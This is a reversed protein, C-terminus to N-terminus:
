SLTYNYYKAAATMADQQTKFIQANQQYPTLWPYYHYMGEVESGYYKDNIKIIWEGLSNKMLRYQDTLVIPTTYKKITPKQQTLLCRGSFVLLAFAIIICASIRLTHTM